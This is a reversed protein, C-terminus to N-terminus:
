VIVILEFMQSTLRKDQDGLVNGKQYMAQKHNPDIKLTKDYWILATNLEGSVYYENGVLYMSSALNTRTKDDM